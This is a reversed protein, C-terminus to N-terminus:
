SWNCRVICKFIYETGGVDLTMTITTTGPGVATVMGKDDVSAIEANDTRYTCVIGDEVGKPLFQFHEKPNFFTADSHSASIGNIDTATTEAAGESSAPLSPEKDEDPLSPEKEEDTWNCRVICEFDYQGNSEVHMKVKTTGPGVATVKGTDSDVSAVSENESSYTCAYIGTIGKPVFKFSEGPGFFTADTHSPTITEASPSPSSSPDSTQQEPTSPDSGTPAQDTVTPEVAEPSNTEQPSQDDSFSDSSAPSSSEQEASVSQGSSGAAFMKDLLKIGEDMLSEKSCGTLFILLLLLIIGKIQIRKM